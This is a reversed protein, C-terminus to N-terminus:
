RLKLHPHLGDINIEGQTRCALTPLATFAWLLLLSHSLRRM